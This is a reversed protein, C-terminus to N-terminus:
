MLAMVIQTYKSEFLSEKWITKQHCPRCLTIGNNTDFLLEDKGSRIPIIHHPELYVNKNGCEQCTYNDRKFVSERWVKWEIKARTRHRELAITRDKIWRYHNEGKVHPPMSGMERRIKSLKQRTELSHKRGLNVLKCKEYHEKSLKRGTLAISIKKGIEKYDKCKVCTKASRDSLKIGCKTCSVIPKRKFLGACKICRIPNNKVQKHCVLCFGM